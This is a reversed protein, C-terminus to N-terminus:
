RSLLHRRLLDLMVAVSRERIVARGNSEPFRRVVAVSGEEDAVAFWVLGVPRGPTAGGPGAIGTVSCAVDCGLRLRAGEAMARATEESVAGYQALLGGPVDLLDIKVQNDYATVGGKFVASAGPVDTIAAAALGGTCSEAFGFSLRRAVADRIVAESLTVGDAAYCDDGLADAVESAARALAAEGAGDDLLLVKVDGPKALVTLRVGPHSRLVRQVAVQADSESLGAVGLEHVVSGTEHYRECVAALMPRMERPPGPLLALLGRKTPVLLGPATGTTADIVTAGHLVDAQRYVQAAAAPDSLREAVPLLLEALREDRALPRDLAKSAAERTVDDHTPGLGGTAVVLDCSETLRRLTRALSVLDDAVSVTELVSFGVGHLALAIEATNTDVRLGEVLETGVTVISAVRM